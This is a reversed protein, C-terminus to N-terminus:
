DAKSPQGSIGGHDRLLKLMEEQKRDVAIDYPTKGNFSKTNVDEVGHELLWSVLDVHGRTTASLLAQNFDRGRTSAKAGVVEAMPVLGSYGVHYMLSYGHPGRANASAPSFRILSAIFEQEGLMAACYADPRAGAELLHLAIERNGTHSAGGLATEWDGAGWDWSAHVATPQEAIMEKVKTLNNHGAGVFVRVFSLDMPAPRKPETGLTPPPALPVAAPAASAPVASQNSASALVSSGLVAAAAALSQSVFSRRPITKM